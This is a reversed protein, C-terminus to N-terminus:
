GARHVAGNYRLTYAYFAHSQRGRRRGNENLATHRHAAFVRRHTAMTWLLDVILLVNITEHCIRRATRQLRRRWSFDDFIRQFQPPMNQWRRSQRKRVEVRRFRRSLASPWSRYSSPLLGTTCPSERPLRPLPLCRPKSNYTPRRACPYTGFLLRRRQRIHNQCQTPISSRNM